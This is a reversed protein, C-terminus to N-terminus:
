MQILISLKKPPIKSSLIDLIGMVDPTLDLDPESLHIQM